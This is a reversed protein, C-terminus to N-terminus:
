ADGLELFRGKWEEVDVPDYDRGHREHHCEVCLAVLNEPRGNLPDEDIHHVEVGDVEPDSVLRDCDPCVYTARSHRKWYLYQHRARAKQKLKHQRLEAATM